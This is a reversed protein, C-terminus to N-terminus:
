QWKEGALDPNAEAPDRVKPAQRTTGRAYGPAPGTRIMYVTLGSCVISLVFLFGFGLGYVLRLDLVWGAVWADTLREPDVLAFLAFTGICASLFAIWLVVAWDRQRMTWRGPLPQQDSHEQPVPM